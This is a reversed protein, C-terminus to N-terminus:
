GVDPVRERRPKEFRDFRYRDVGLTQRDSEALDLSLITPLLDHVEDGDLIAGMPPAYHALVLAGGPALAAQLTSLSTVLDEFSLYYLVDSAVILDFAEPEISTPLQCTRCCVGPFASTREAARSVAVPSIDVADLRRCRSALRVTFAGEACGIELAREFPGPGCLELTREFKLAERPNSDFLFPDETEFVRDWWDPKAGWRMEAPALPGAFRTVIRGRKNLPIRGFLSLRTRVLRGRVRESLGATHTTTM